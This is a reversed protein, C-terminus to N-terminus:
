RRARRRWTWGFVGAAGAALLVLTSPEPTPTAVWVGSTGDNLTATFAIQGLNNLGNRSFSLSNTSITYGDLLDGEMIVKDTSPDPGTFIGRAPGSTPAAGFAV